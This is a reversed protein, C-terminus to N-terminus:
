LMLATIVYDCALISICGIVVARTGAQGVELAGGRVYFGQYAPISTIIFGFIVAKVLAVTVTFGNFGGQIGQIYDSPAVAGTLLGGFLGGAIACFIAFVVLVPMMVLGAVIKPLILFGPANIGMIELADIQETVRMSGIQSSISSGVKGM